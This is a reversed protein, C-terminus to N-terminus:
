SNLFNGANQPFRFNMVANVVARWRDRDQELDLWDVGLGVARLDMKNSDEWKHRPRGLTRRGEPRGVLIRYAGRKKGMIHYTEGTENREIQIGWYYKTILLTMLNRTTNRTKEV